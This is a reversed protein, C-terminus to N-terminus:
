ALLFDILFLETNDDIPNGDAFYANWKRLWHQPNRYGLRNAIEDTIHRAPLQRISTVKIKFLGLKDEPNQITYTNGATFKTRNSPHYVTNFIFREDKKRPIAMARKAPNGSVVLHWDKMYM